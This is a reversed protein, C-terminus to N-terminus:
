RNRRGKAKRGALTPALCMLLRHLDARQRSTLESLMEDEERQLLAALQGLSTRGSDTLRVVHRRRDTPDPERVVMAGGELADLVSVLNRADIRAFAGIQRQSAPGLHGAAM